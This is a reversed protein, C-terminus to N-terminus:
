QYYRSRILKQLTRVSWQDDAAKDLYFARELHDEIQILLRYHSWMLEDRITQRLSTLEGCLTRPILYTLYFQRFTWLNTTKYGKGYARTLIQSLEEILHIGYDAREQGQQETEVIIRGIHWYAEVKAFEPRRQLSQQAPDVLQRLYQHLETYDPRNEVSETM